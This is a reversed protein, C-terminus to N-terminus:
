FYNRLKRIPTSEMGARNMIELQMEVHVHRRYNDMQDENSTLMIRDVLLDDLKEVLDYWGQDSFGNDYIQTVEGLKNRVDEETATYVVSLRESTEGVDKVLFALGEVEDKVPQPKNWNFYEPEVM